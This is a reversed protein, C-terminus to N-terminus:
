FYGFLFSSLQDLGRLLKEPMAIVELIGVTGSKRHRGFHSKSGGGKKEFRIRTRKGHNVSSVETKTARCGGRERFKACNWSHKWVSAWDPKARSWKSFSAGPLIPQAHRLIPVSSPSSTKNSLSSPHDFSRCDRLVTYVCGYIKKIEVFPIRTEREKRGLCRIIQRMSLAGRSM